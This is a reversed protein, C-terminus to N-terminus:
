RALPSSPACAHVGVAALARETSGDREFRALRAEAAKRRGAAYDDAIRDLREVDRTLLDVVHEGHDLQPLTDLGQILELEFPRLVAWTEAFDLEGRKATVDEFRLAAHTRHVSCVDEARSAWRQITNSMVQAPTLNPAPPTQPEDDAFRAVIGGVILIGVLVPAARALPRASTGSRVICAEPLGRLRRHLRSSDETLDVLWFPGPVAQGLQEFLEAELEGEARKREYRLARGRRVYGIVYVPYRDALTEPAKRALYARAVDNRDLVAAIERVAEPPLDHEVVDDAPTLRSREAHAQAVLAHAEAARHRCAAADARRGQRALSEALTALAHPAYLPELRAAEELLEEASPDDREAALEGLALLAEGSEPDLELARKWATRAAELGHLRSVLGAYEGLEDPPLSRWDGQAELDALRSEAARAGEYDERWATAAEKQWLVDLKGGLAVLRETGLLIEAASASVCAPRPRVHEPELGLATLRTRLPPHASWEVEDVDLAAARWREADPHAGSEQLAHGMGEILPPPDPERDARKWLEPWFRELLLANGIETRVLASGATEAGVARAAAQDAEHEHRRALALSAGEFRPVYWRVFPRVLLASWTGVAEMQLSLREWSIRLRYVWAGVRGHRRSIHGLEHALVARLEREQLGLMLPLGVLLVNRHPGAIGLRPFQAVAANFSGDVWVEHIRPARVERRLARLCEFLRPAEPETLRVGSPGPSRVWLATLVGAAVIALPVTVWLAMVISPLLLFAGIGAALLGVFVGLAYAYGLLGLAVVRVTSAPAEVSTQPGAQDPRLPEM